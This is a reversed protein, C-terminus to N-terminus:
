EGRPALARDLAVRLAHVRAEDVPNGIQGSRKLASGVICGNAPPVFAGVNESTIGSGIYVPAASSECAITADAPAAPAGTAAGSVIVADALGREVTDRVVDALTLAGIPVAHKVLVDAFIRVREIGLQRRLRLTEDARGAILGQDTLMAGVHVNVRIFDAGCALAIGLAAAADNRLVNVGVACNVSERVHLCCTTMAAITHPDVRDARFPVDNFNEVLVGDAGGGQLARADAVAHAVCDQLSLRALPSGPLAPLHVVGILRLDM